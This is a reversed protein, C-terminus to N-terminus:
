AALANHCEGASLRDFPLTRGARDSLTSDKGGSYGIIWPVEDASYLERIEEHLTDITAQFGLDDFASVRTPKTPPDPPLPLTPQAPLSKRKAPM